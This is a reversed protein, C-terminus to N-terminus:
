ARVYEVYQKNMYTSKDHITEDNNSSSYVTEWNKGMACSPKLAYNKKQIWQNRTFSFLKWQFIHEDCLDLSPSLSFALWDTLPFCQWETAIAYERVYRFFYVAFAFFFVVCMTDGDVDDLSIHLPPNKKKITTKSRNSAVILSEKLNTLM